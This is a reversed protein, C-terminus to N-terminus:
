EAEERIAELVEVTPEINLSSEYARLVRAMQKTGLGRDEVRDFADFVARIEGKNLGSHKGYLFAVLDERDLDGGFELLSTRIEEVDAEVDRFSESFRRAFKDKEEDDFELSEAERASQIAERAKGYKGSEILNTVRETDDADFTGSEELSVVMDELRERVEQLQNREQVFKQSHEEAKVLLEDLETDENDQM